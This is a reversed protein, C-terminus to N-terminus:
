ELIIVTGLPPQVTAEGMIYTGIESLTFAKSSIVYDDMLGNVGRSTYDNDAVWFYSSADPSAISWSTIVTTNSLQLNGDKDHIYMCVTDTSNDWTISLHHWLNDNIASWGGAIYLHQITGSSDGISLYLRDLTDAGNKTFSIFGAASDQFPYQAYFYRMEDNVAPELHRVWVMVTGINPNVINQSFYKLSPNDSSTVTPFVDTLDIAGVGYKGSNRIIPGPTGEIGQAVANGKSYDGDFGSSGTNGNWNAIFTTSPIYAPVSAHLTAEGIISTEIESLTLAKSSIVYDDLIGNSGRSHYENDSLWFDSTVTPPLLSWSTIVATNSLELIGDKDHIYMCVTDTSNDWTVSLHHWQNDNILSRGGDIYLYQLTQANIMLYLRDISSGQLLTIYKGEPFEAYFFRMDDTAGDCRIWFMVSGVDQDVVSLAPYALSPNDSSTTTPYVDTLDIAGNGYKASAIVVPGPTGEIVDAVTNESSYNADIGSNGTDGNWTAIFTAEPVVGASVFSVSLCVILSLCVIKM